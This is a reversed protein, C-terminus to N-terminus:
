GGERGLERRKIPPPQRRKHREEEADLSAAFWERILRQGVRFLQEEDLEDIAIEINIADCEIGLDGRQRVTVLM